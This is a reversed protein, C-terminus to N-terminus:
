YGEQGIAQLFADPFEGEDVIMLDFTGWVGMDESVSSATLKLDVGSPIVDPFVRRDEYNSDGPTMLSFRKKVKFVGEGKRRSQYLMNAHQTGASVGGEYFMGAEGRYLFAVKGLPVTYMAMQTQNSGNVIVAKIVSTGDPVGATNDTGSYCYVTGAIDATATSGDVEM